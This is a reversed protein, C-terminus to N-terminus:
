SSQLLSFQIEVRRNKLRDADSTNRQIPHYEGFGRTSLNTPHIGLEVLTKAVQTARDASLEWNSPYRQTHIPRDDTHGQIEVMLEPHNMIFTAVKKLVPGVAEKLQTQGSDFIIKEPFALVIYQSHREVTVGQRDEKNGLIGLLDNELVAVAEKRSSDLTSVPRTMRNYTEAAVPKVQEASPSLRRAQVPTGQQAFPLAFLLVFFIMLVMLLDSLTLLWIENGTSTESPKRLFRLPKSSKRFHLQNISKEPLQPM